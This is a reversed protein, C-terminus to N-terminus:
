ADECTVTNKRSTIDTKVSLFVFPHRSHIYSVYSVLFTKSQKNQQTAKRLVADNSVITTVFCTFRPPTMYQMLASLQVM